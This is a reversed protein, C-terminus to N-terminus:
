SADAARGESGGEGQRPNRLLLELEELVCPKVLHHDFGAERSRRRDEEGGYGSLAILVLGPLGPDGRLRRAVEHGGLSPLALDLLVIDPRFERAVELAQPGDYATQVPHGILRLLVGLSDASDRNDDVVLVRRIAAGPPPERPEGGAPAAGSAPVAPLRVVFESGRNPGGSCAETAGGHLEVLSKVLALGVGLGGREGEPGGVQAFPDFVRGLQDPPIGVGDDTVRVVVHAGERAATLGVHGGPPTYKAANTLLNVFVQTLRGADGDVWLSGDPPASATLLHGRANLQPRAAEVAQALVAALDTPRRQLSLKGQKLRAVDLLDDVLRAMQQLQRAITEQAQRAAPSEGGDLDLIGAASVVPALHNRLEHAVVALFEDKRREADKLTAAEQAHRLAEEKRAKEAREREARSAEEKQHRSFRTVSAAIGEDLVLGIAMVERGRLPRGLTEELYDLLVLRLVQYDRVVEALSWGSEWRQEGHAAAPLRHWGNDGPDSEALSRGMQQLFAPLHDLLADHHVRAANPQEEAARRAWREIILGADRRILNGIEAHSESRLQTPQINM